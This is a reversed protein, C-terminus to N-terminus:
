RPQKGGDREPFIGYYGRPAPERFRGNDSQILFGRIENCVDCHNLYAERRPAYGFERGAMRYLGRIDATTLYHLLPYDDAAVPGGLDAM